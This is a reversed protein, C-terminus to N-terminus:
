YTTQLVLDPICECLLDLKKDRLITEIEMCNTTINFKALLNSQPAEPHQTEECRMASCGYSDLVITNKM